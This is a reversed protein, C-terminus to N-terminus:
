AAPGLVRRVEAASTSGQSVAALACQWLSTMGNERAIRDVTEADNQQLIAAALPSRDLTMIEALLLRGRYGSQDCQQCGVAVRAKPVDFGLRATDEKSEQACDCLRRVLRQCVVCLVGSRLVYPEIGMESLRCIAAAASGAHFTTLVLQGTLSAQLAIEATERDRIEGVLIVEPDQRMLSRLGGAFTFGAGPNIQSQAIGDIPVEVPDELSVINRGGGSASVIERLSAYATTTKGSGAPGAIVIAGSTAALLQRLQDSVDAPLKLDDLRRLQEDVAFLRLVAKEGHLTPFTSLRLDLTSHQSRIRGEQPVDTRYTLLDALVKLRAVVDSNDGSPFLGISQLLGDKRWRLDLGQPNPLLHVDSVRVHALASLVQEVFRVAYQPDAPSLAGLKAALEHTSM